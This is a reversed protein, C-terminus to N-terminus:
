VSQELRYKYTNCRKVYINPIQLKYQEEHQETVFQTQKLHSESFFMPVILDTYNLQAKVNYNLHITRMEIRQWCQIHLVFRSCTLQYNQKLQQSTNQKGPYSIVLPVISASVVPGIHLITLQRVNVLYWTSIMSCNTFPPFSTFSGLFLLCM